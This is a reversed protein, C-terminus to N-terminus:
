TALDLPLDAIDRLRKGDILTELTETADEHRSARAADLLEDLAAHYTCDVDGTGYAISTLRSPLPEMTVMVIRPTQGKRNRILNLAESRVNQARDSRLTVKCSVSAHLIRRKGSPLSGRLPSRTAVSDDFLDANANLEEDSVPWRAVVIDPTILYGGGLATHLRPDEKTLRVIEEIYDYQEFDAVGNGADSTSFEWKGPRLHKLTKFAEDLFWCTEEEFASGLKQPSAEIPHLAIGIQQGIRKAMGNALDVSTVSNSDCVHLDEKPSGQNDVRYGLVNKCLREHYERRLQAFVSAM